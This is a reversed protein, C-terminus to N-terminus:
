HRWARLRDDLARLVSEHPEVPYTLQLVSLLEQGWTWAEVYSRELTGLGGTCAAYRNLAQSSIERELQRKGSLWHQLAHEHLRALRVLIDQVFWLLEHARAREGRLLVGSGFVMWNLFRDWLQQLESGRHPAAEGRARLETLARHLEGQVDKILMRDPDIRREPWSAVLAIASTPEVHFEGRVLRDFLVNVTGFENRLLLSVPAVTGLFAPLDFDQPRECFLYFEIDSFEDAEGQTWSGYTLAASIRTERLIAARFDHLLVHQLM